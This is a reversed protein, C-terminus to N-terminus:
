SEEDFSFASSGDADQVEIKEDQQSKQEEKEPTFENLTSQLLLETTVPAQMCEVAFNRCQLRQNAQFQNLKM